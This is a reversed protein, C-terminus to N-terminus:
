SDDRIHLASAPLHAAIGITSHSSRAHIEGAKGLKGSM